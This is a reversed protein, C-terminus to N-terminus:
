GSVVVDENSSTPARGTRPDIQYFACLAEFLDTHHDHMRHPQEFFVETAVAFFESPAEAAYPRLISTGHRVKRMEQKVLSQWAEASEPAVLSPVGDANINDFDFHHALEHLVVNDGDDPSDWSLEVSSATLITPGQEHAMGDYSAYDGGYYDDDFRDPYFLFSTTGPLEWEPRGHLLCAVGAAVGLRLETSVDVSQVGEFSYEDLVFQVDREFRARGEADLKQYLPIHTALWQQTDHPVSKKSVRWRRIPRRLALLLVLGGIVIGPWPGYPTAQAGIVALTGGAVGAMLVGWILTSPGLIQM